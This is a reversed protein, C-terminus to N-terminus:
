GARLLRPVAGSRLLGLATRVVVTAWVAILAVLLTLALGEVAAGDVRLALLSTGTVCTGIPFTFSWWTLAFPMGRRAARAVIAVAVLLWAMAIAVVVSGFGTAFGDLAAGLPAPAVDRAFTGLLCAATVSQGLPGLVIFVTPAAATPGPGHVAIRLVVLTIVVLGLALGLGFLGYGAVLLADRGPGDALQPLIGGVAAASVMPPVAALIWVPAVDGLGWPGRRIWVVPVAVAVVVGLVTGIGCLVLAVSLGLSSGLLPAADLLAGSGITTLAMPVTGWFAIAGPGATAAAHDAARRRLEAVTVTTALVLLVVAVIWVASAFGRAARGDVPAFTVANAVIGTGMATVFWTPGATRLPNVRASRRRTSGGAATAPAIPPAAHTM